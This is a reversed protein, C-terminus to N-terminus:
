ASGLLGDIRAVVSGQDHNRDRVFRLMAAVEPAGLRSALLDILTGDLARPLDGGHLRAAIAALAVAGLARHDLSRLAADQVGLDGDALLALLAATAQDDAYGYLADAGARRIAESSARTREVLFPLQDPARSNGLAAVAVAREADDDADAFARRLDAVIARAEGARGAAAAHGAAAGLTYATAFRADSDAPATAMAARLFSLTEAEPAAVISFRQVLLPREDAAAGGLIRRMADQAEPSGVSALLDFVLGRGRAGLAPEAFLEVLQACLSPQARLLGTAQWLWRDHDPLDGSAAHLRLDLLMREATLGGIRQELAAPADDFAVLEGPALRRWGATLLEEPEAPSTSALRVALRTEARLGDGAGDVVVREGAVLSRLTGDGDLAIDGRSEVRARAAADGAPLGSLRRYRVRGRAVALPRASAIAYAVEADGLSTPEDARWAAAPAAPLTMSLEAALAQILHVFLPQAEPAVRVGRLRGDAALELVAEDAGLAAAAAERDALLRRGLVEIEARDIADFSVALLTAGDAHGVVRAVLTAELDVAGGLRQPQGTDAGVTSEQRSHWALDLQYRTGDAWILRPALAAVGAPLPAWTAAPASTAAVAPGRDRGRLLLGAGVAAGAAVLAVVARRKM